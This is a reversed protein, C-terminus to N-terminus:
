SGLTLITFPYSQVLEGFNYIEPAVLAAIGMDFALAQQEAVSLTDHPTYVLYM